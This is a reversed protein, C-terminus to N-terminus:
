IGSRLHRKRKWMLRGGWAYSDANNELGVYHKAQHSHKGTQALGDWKYGTSDDSGDDLLGVDDTNAFKHSAEHVIVRAIKGESYSEIVDTNLHIRGETGRVWGETGTRIFKIHKWTGKVGGGHKLHHFADKLGNKVDDGDHISGVVIDFNGRIGDRIQKFKALITPVKLQAAPSTGLTKTGPADLVLSFYKHLAERVEDHSGFFEIAMKPDAMAVIKAHEYKSLLDISDEVIQRSYRIATGLKRQCHGNLTLFPDKSWNTVRVNEITLKM